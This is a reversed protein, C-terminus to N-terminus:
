SMKLSYRLGVLGDTPLDSRLSGWVLVVGLSDMWILAFVVFFAAKDRSSVDSLTM